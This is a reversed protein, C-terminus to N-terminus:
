RGESVPVALRCPSTPNAVCALVLGAEREQVALCNPERMLVEGRELVIKCAGCGGMACSYPLALRAALGAELVTQGPAVM